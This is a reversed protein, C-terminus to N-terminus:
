MIKNTPIYNEFSKPLTKHYYDFMFLSVHLTIFKSGSLTSIQTQHHLLSGMGSLTIIRARTSILNYVWCYLFYCVKNRTFDNELLPFNNVWTVVLVWDPNVDQEGTYTKIYDKTLNMMADTRTKEAPNSFTTKSDYVHHYTKSNKTCDSNAWFPALVGFGYRRAHRGKPMAKMIDVPANRRLFRQALSV